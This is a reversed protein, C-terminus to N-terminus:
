ISPQKGGTVITSESDRQKKKVDKRNEIEIKMKPGSITGSM